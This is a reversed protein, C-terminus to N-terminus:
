NLLQRRVAAARRADAELAVQRRDWGLKDVLEAAFGVHTFRERWSWTRARQGARIDGYVRRCGELRVRCSKRPNM